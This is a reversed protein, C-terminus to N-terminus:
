SYSFELNENQFRNNWKNCIHFFSINIISLIYFLYFYPFEGYIRTPISKFIEISKQHYISTEVAFRDSSIMAFTAECKPQISQNQQNGYFKNNGIPNYRNSANQQKYSSPHKWQNLTSLKNNEKFSQNPSNNSNNLIKSSTVHAKSHPSYSNTFINNSSNNSASVSSSAAKQQKLQMAAIRKKEIEEQSYM